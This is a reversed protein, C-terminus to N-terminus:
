FPRTVPHERLRKDLALAQEISQSGAAQEFPGSCSYHTPVLQAIRWARLLERLEPEDQINPGLSRKSRSCRWQELPGGISNPAADRACLWGYKAEVSLLLIGGPSLLQDRHQILKPDEVYNLLECAVIADYPGELFRDVHEATSWHLDFHGKQAALM